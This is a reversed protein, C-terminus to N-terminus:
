ISELIEDAIKSRVSENNERIAIVYLLGLEEGTLEECDLNGLDASNVINSLSSPGRDVAHDIKTGMIAGSVM